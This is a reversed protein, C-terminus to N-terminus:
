HKERYLVKLYQNVGLAKKRYKDNPKTLNSVLVRCTDSKLKLSLDVITIIIKVSEKRQHYITQILTSLWTTQIAGTLLKRM